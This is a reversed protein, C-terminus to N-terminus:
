GRVSPSKEQVWVGQAWGAGAGAREPCLIRGLCGWAPWRGTHGEPLRLRVPAGPPWLAARPALLPSVLGGRDPLM